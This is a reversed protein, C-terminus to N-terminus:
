AFNDYYKYFQTSIEKNNIFIQRLYETLQETKLSYKLTITMRVKNKIRPIIALSPGLVTLGVIKRLKKVYDKAYNMLTNFSDGVLLIQSVRVFPEYSGVERASIIKNYIYNYDKELSQICINNSDYTQIISLGQKTRGSRGILQKFLVYSSFVSDYSPNRFSADALVVCSLTVNPFDLGKSIMQTGLLIDAENNLFKLWLAEHSGKKTTTNADVRMIRANIFLRNLEEEVEEIGLHKNLLEHNCKPCLKPNSITYGCYHCKLTDSTKYYSLSVDCNKCVPVYGCSPCILMRSYAKINHLIIVQEKKELCSSINKTLEASFISSESSALLKDLEIIKLTPLTSTLALNNLTLLKYKTNVANYYSTISPTASGLVLPCNNYFCRYKLIDITDYSVSSSQIYSQDHEEDVIIIGINELPLFSASRTGLVVCAKKNKVKLYESLRENSSLRSHFIAIDKFESIIRRALPAILTIEPTLILATKNSKLVEKILKIYVETKGSGTVGKLLFVSDTNFGDKITNYAKEQEENLTIDKIELSFKHDIEYKKEIEKVSLANQKVLTKINSSSFGKELLDSNNYFVNKDLLELLNYKELIKLDINSNKYYYKITKIISSDKLKYVISLTNDKVYKNIINNYFSDSPLFHWINNKNFKPIIEENLTPLMSPDNLLIDKKYDFLLESPLVTKICSFYTSVNTKYLYDIINFLESSIFSESDVVELISKADYTSSEKIRVVFGMRKLSNGFFVIVRAGVTIIQELESPVFYDYTTDVNRNNIDVIVECYM